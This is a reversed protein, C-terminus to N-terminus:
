RRFTKLEGHEPFATVAERLVALADHWANMSLLGQAMVFYARQHTKKIGSFIFLYYAEWSENKAQPRKSLIASFVNATLSGDGPERVKIEEVSAARCLLHAKYSDSVALEGYGLTLFTAGRDVWVQPHYPQTRVM